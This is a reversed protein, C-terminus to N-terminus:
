IIIESYIINIVFKILLHCIFYILINIQKGNYRYITYICYNLIKVTYYVEYTYKKIYM